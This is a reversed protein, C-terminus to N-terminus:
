CKEAATPGHSCPSTQQRIPLFVHPCSSTPKLACMQRPPSLLAEGSEGGKLRGYVLVLVFCVGCCAGRVRVKVSMAVLV